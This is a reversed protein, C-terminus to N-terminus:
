TKNNIFNGAYNERGGYAQSVTERNKMMNFVFHFQNLMEQNAQQIKALLEKGKPSDNYAKDSLIQLESQLTERQEVLSFFMKLDYNGLFKNMELTVFLYDEWKAHLLESKM